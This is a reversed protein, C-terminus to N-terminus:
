QRAWQLCASCGSNRVGLTLVCARVKILGTDDGTSNIPQLSSLDLDRTGVLSAERRKEETRDFLGAAVMYCDGITEM